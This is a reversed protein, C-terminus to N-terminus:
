EQELSSTLSPDLWAIEEDSILVQLLVCLLTVPIPSALSDRWDWLGGCGCPQVWLLGTSVQPHLM